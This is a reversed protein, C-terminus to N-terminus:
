AAAFDWLKLLRQALQDAASRHPPDLHSCGSMVEASARPIVQVLRRAVDFFRPNSNAGSLVLTPQSIRSFVDSRFGVGALMDELKDTLADWAPPPGLTSPLQGPSAMVLRRFAPQRQDAALSRIDTLGVRWRAEVRSWDDDGITAPEFLAISRIASRDALAAALAVTAGASFGFLHYRRWGRDFAARRVAATETNIDYADCPELGWVRLGVVAMECRPQLSAAFKQASTLPTDPEVASPSIWLCRHREDIV